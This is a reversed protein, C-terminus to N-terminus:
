NVLQLAFRLGLSLRGNLSLKSDLIEEESDIQTKARRNGQVSGDRVHDSVFAGLDDGREVRLGM